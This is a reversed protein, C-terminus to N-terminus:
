ALSFIAFILHVRSFVDVPLPLLNCHLTFTDRSLTANVRKGETERETAGAHTYM